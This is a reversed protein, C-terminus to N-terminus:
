KKFFGKFCDVLITHSKGWSIYECSIRSTLPFGISIKLIKSFCQHVNDESEQMEDLDRVTVTTYLDDYYPHEAWSEEEHVPYDESEHM